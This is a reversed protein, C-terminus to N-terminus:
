GQFVEKRGTRIRFYNKLARLVRIIFGPIYVVQYISGSSHTITMEFKVSYFQFEIEEKRGRVMFAGDDLDLVKVMQSKM